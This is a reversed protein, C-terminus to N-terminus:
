GSPTQTEIVGQFKGSTSNIFLSPGQKIVPLVITALGAGVVGSVVSSKPSSAASISGGPTNLTMQSWFSSPARSQECGPTSLTEKVPDVAVPLLTMADVAPLM